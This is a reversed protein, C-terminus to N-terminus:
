ESLFYTCVQSDQLRMKLLILATEKRFISMINHRKKRIYNQCM